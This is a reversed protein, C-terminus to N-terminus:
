HEVANQIENLQEITNINKVFQDLETDITITKTQLQEVAIRLRKEDKDLLAKCKHLCHKKYLAMLPMTKNQSKLQIVDKTEDIGDILKNIVKSNILPIDCSLVLNYEAESYCLGTYLGALPGSEKISDEIRIYGFQDYESNNSVIIIDSVLPKMAEIIHTIFPKGNLDIFGKDTGMRSSKGGALIIGTINKTYIM